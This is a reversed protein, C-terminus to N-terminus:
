RFEPQDAIRGAEAEGVYECAVLYGNKEADDSLARLQASM